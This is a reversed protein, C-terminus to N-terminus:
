SAPVFIEQGAVVGSGDLDNMSEIRAVTERPDTNPDLEEAIAWLTQGPQVVWTRAAGTTTSSGAEADFAGLIAQGLTVTALALVVLAAVVLLRGRMTLRVASPHAASAGPRGGPRGGPRRGPRPSASRGDVPALVATSM